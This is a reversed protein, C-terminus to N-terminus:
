GPGLCAALGLWAQVVIVNDWCLFVSLSLFVAILITCQRRDSWKLEEWCSAEWWLQFLINLALLINMDCSLTLVFQYIEAKQM